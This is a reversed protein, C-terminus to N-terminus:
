ATKELRKVGWGTQDLHKERFHPLGLKLGMCVPSYKQISTIKISKLYVPLCFIVFPITALM